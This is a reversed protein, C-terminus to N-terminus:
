HSLWYDLPKPYTPPLEAPPQGPYLYHRIRKEFCIKLVGSFGFYRKLIPEAGSVLSFFNYDESIHMGNASTVIFRGAEAGIRHMLMIGSGHWIKGDGRGPYCHVLVAPRRESFVRLMNQPFDPPVVIDSDLWLSLDIDNTNHFFYERLSERAASIRDLMGPPVNLAPITLVDTAFERLKEAIKPDLDSDVAFVIEAPSPRLHSIGSLFFDLAYTRTRGVPSVFMYENMM